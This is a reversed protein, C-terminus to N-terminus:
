RFYRQLKLAMALFHGILIGIVLNARANEREAKAGGVAGAGRHDRQPASALIAPAVLGRPRFFIERAPSKNGRDSPEGTARQHRIRAASADRLDRTVEDAESVRGATYGATYLARRLIPLM